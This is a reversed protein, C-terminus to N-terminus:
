ETLKTYGFYFGFVISFLGAAIRIWRHLSPLREVSFVVPLSMVAGMALMGGVSGAGFVLIYILGSIISPLTTLVLLMLAASGAVGHVMGILFPKLGFPLKVAVHAHEHSPAAASHFHLHTHQEQNSDHKHTHAHLGTENHRVLALVGLAILMLAVVLEATTAFADPITLKLALVIIGIFFLSATHGLGWYLGVLSSRAVSRHQSVMTSIAVVHDAELAHQLGIMFGLSMASFFTADITPSM